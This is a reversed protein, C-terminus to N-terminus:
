NKSPSVEGASSEPTTDSQGRRSNSSVDKRTDEAASAWTEKIEMMGLDQIKNIENLPFGLEYLGKAGEIKEKREDKLPEITLFDFFCELNTSYLLSSNIVSAFYEMKPILNNTFFQRDSIKATAFNLGDTIGFQNKPVNYTGLIEERSMKTLNEFDMDKHTTGTTVYEVGGTMMPTKHAGPLGGFNMDFDDQMRRIEKEDLDSDPNKDLLYGAINAGNEFFQDNYAIAKNYGKISIASAQQPSYSDLEDLPNPEFFRIIQRDDLDEEGWKWNKFITRGHKIETNASIGSGGRRVVEIRAPASKSTLKGKWPRGSEDTLVWFCEGDLEYYMSTTKWLLMPTNIIANPRNFLKVWPNGKSKGTTTNITNQSVEERLLFPVGGINTSISRVAAFVWPNTYGGPKYATNIISSTKNFDFLSKVRGILADKITINTSTNKDM